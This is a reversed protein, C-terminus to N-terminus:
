SFKLLCALVEDMKSYHEVGPAHYFVLSAIGSCDQMDAEHTPNFWVIRKNLALAMGTETMTGRYHYDNHPTVVVVVDANMVGMIDQVAMQRQQVPEREASVEVLPWKWTIEHGAEELAPYWIRLVEERFKWGSAVYIKM